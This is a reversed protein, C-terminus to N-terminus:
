NSTSEDDIERMMIWEEPEKFLNVIRVLQWGDQGLSNLLQLGTREGQPHQKALDNPNVAKYEYRKM